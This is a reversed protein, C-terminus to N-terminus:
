SSQVMTYTLRQSNAMHASLLSGEKQSLAVAARAKEAIALMRFLKPSRRRAKIGFCSLRPMQIKPAGGFRANQLVGDM